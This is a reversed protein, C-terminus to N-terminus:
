FLSASVPLDTATTHCAFRCCLSVSISMSGKHVLVITTETGTMRNSSWGQDAATAMAVFVSRPEGHRSSTPQIRQRRAPVHCWFRCTQGKATGRFTLFHLLNSGPKRARWKPGVSRSCRSRSPHSAANKEEAGACCREEVLVRGEQHETHTHTYSSKLSVTPWKWDLDIEINIEDTRYKDLLDRLAKDIFRSTFIIFWCGRFAELLVELLITAIPSKFLQVCVFPLLLYFPPVAKNSNTSTSNLHLFMFSVSISPLPVVLISFVMASMQECCDHAQLVPYVDVM